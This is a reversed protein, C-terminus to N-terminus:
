MDSSGTDFNLMLSQGGINVPSLYETDGREPNASADGTEAGTQVRSQTLSQPVEWHFKKYARRLATPGDPVHNSRRVLNVKFSRKTHQVTAPAGLVATLLLTAVLLASRLGM